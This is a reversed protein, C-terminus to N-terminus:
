RLSARQIPMRALHHDFPRRQLDPAPRHLEIPVTHLPVAALEADLARPKHRAVPSVMTGRTTVADAGDVRLDGFSPASIAGKLTRRSM